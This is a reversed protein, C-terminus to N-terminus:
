GKTYCITVYGEYASLDAYTYVMVNTSTMQVKALTNGSTNIIPMQQLVGSSTSRAFAQFSVITATSLIEPDVRKSQTDPLTGLSILKTYVKKGLHRQATPYEVGLAMPPNLYEWGGWADSTRSRICIERSSLVPNFAIQMVETDFRRIAMVVGDQFPAHECGSSFSFWGTTQEKNLNETAKGGAGLGLSKMYGLSVADSASQPDTLNTLRNGDMAVPVHFCFDGEGWEFVPRAKVTEEASTVQSVLDQASIQFVYASQYDLGTVSAQATYNNSSKTVQMSQWSGYSGGQRKYRYTVTLTNDKAGFSGNFYMGKARLTMAGTGDPIDHLLQCTPKIYSIMPLTVTKTVTNGRNDTVSFLFSSEEVANIKGDSTRSKAGCTVKKKKIEALKVATAGITVQANSVYRILTGEDGTLTVADANSDKVAPELLPQPNKITFVKNIASEKNEQGVKTLLMFRVQRSNSGTTAARLVNREAETLNFTYSSGTKSLDRYAIDAQTGDLSICAQLLDVTKGMPNAYTIVPNEEDHFDPASVLYAYRAIPDLTVTGSGSVSTGEMTTETPGNILGYLYCQGAGEANHSVTATLTHITVWEGSVSGFWSVSETKSGVTLKGKWTGTTTWENSSRRLQIKATVQSSNAQTGNSSSEWLIQGYLIGSGTKELTLIGNAM